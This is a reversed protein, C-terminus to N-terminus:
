PYIFLPLLLHEGQTSLEAEVRGVRRPALKFLVTGQREPGLRFTYTVGNPTADVSEARPQTSSISAHDLLDAGLDVRLTESPLPQTVAVKMETPANARLLREYTVSLPLTPFTQTVKSLWGQGFAGILGVLVVLGILAQLVTQAHSWKSEFGPNAEIQTETAEASSIM